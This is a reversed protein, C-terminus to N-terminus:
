YFTDNHTRQDQLLMKDEDEHTEAEFAQSCQTTPLLHTLKAHVSVFCFKNENKIMRIM